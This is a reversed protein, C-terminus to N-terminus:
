YKMTTVSIVGVFQSSYASYYNVVYGYYTYSSRCGSNYCYAFDLLGEGATGASCLNSGYYLYIDVDGETPYAAVSMSVPKRASISVSGGPGLYYPWTAAFRLVTTCSTTTDDPFNVGISYGTLDIPDPRAEQTKAIPAALPEVDDTGIWMDGLIRADVARDAPPTIVVRAVTGGSDVFEAIVVQGPKAGVAQEELDGRESSIVHPSRDPDLSSPQSPASTLWFLIAILCCRTRALHKLM